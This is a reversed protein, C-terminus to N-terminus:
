ASAAPKAAFRLSGLAAGALELLQQLIEVHERTFRRQPNATRLSLVGIPERDADATLPAVLSSVLERRTMRGKLRAEATEDLLFISRSTAALGALGEGRKLRTSAIVANSLGQAVKIKLVAEQPDYVMVSGGDAKTVLTAADLLSHLVRDTHYSAVAQTARDSSPLIASLQKSQYALQVLSTGVEELLQLASRIGNFTFLKLSLLAPWVAKPDLGLEQVRQRFALEEERVGVVMPGVVFYALAQESTVRIPVASYTAGPGTTVTAIEVPLAAAPLLLDLEEGVNLLAILRETDASAPWSPSALLERSPSVTRIAVGLVSSFHDQLRQWRAPEVLDLLTIGSGATCDHEM